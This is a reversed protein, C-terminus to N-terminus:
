RLAIREEHTRDLCFSLDSCYCQRRGPIKITWRLIYNRLLSFMAINANLILKLCIPLIAIVVQTWEVVLRM